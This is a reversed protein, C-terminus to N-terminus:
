AAVEDPAGLRRAEEHLILVTTDLFLALRTMHSAPYLIRCTEVHSLHIRDMGVMQSLEEQTFGLHLRRRRIAPGVPQQAAKRWLRDREAAESQQPGPLERAQAMTMALVTDNM